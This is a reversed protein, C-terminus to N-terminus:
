ICFMAKFVTTKPTNSVYTNNRYTSLVTKTAGPM